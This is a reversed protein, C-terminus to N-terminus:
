VAVPPFHSRAVLEARLREAELAALLLWAFVAVPSLFARRFIHVVRTELARRATWATPDHLNTALAARHAQVTTILATLVTRERTRPWCRQWESLWRTLLTEDAARGAFAALPGQALARERLSPEVTALEQLAPEDRMWGYAPEGRLLYALAPLDILLQTWLVAARWPSPLWSAAEVIQVRLRARLLREIEHPATTASVNTIWHRLSTARVQELLAPLEVLGHLTDWVVEGPRMGLRAQLRAQTYALASVPKM